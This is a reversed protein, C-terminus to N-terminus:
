TGRALPGNSSAISYTVSRPLNLRYGLFTNESGRYCGFAPFAVIHDGSHDAMAAIDRQLKFRERSNRHVFTDSIPFIPLGQLLLRLKRRIYRDRFVPARCTTNVTMWENMEGILSDPLQHMSDESAHNSIVTIRLGSDYIRLSAFAIRTMSRYFDERQSALAFAPRLEKTNMTKTMLNPLADFGHM